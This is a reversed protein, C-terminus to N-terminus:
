SLFGLLFLNAELYVSYYNSLQISKILEISLHTYIVKLITGKDKLM